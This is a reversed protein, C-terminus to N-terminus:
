ERDTFHYNQGLKMQGGAENQRSAAQFVSLNEESELCGARQALISRIFLGDVTYNHLLLVYLLVCESERKLNLAYVFVAPGM